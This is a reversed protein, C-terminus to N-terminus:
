RRDSAAAPGLQKCKFGDVHVEGRGRAPRRWCRCRRGQIKGTTQLLLFGRAAQVHICRCMLVALMLEGVVGM